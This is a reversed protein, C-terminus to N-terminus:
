APLPGRDRGDFPTSAAASPLPPLLNCRLRLCTASSGSQSRALALVGAAKLTARDEHEPDVRAEEQLRRGPRSLSLSLPSVRDMTASIPRRVGHVYHSPDFPGSRYEGRLNKTKKM